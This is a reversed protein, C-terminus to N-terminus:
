RRRLESWALGFIYPTTLALIVLPGAIWYFEFWRILVEPLSADGYLLEDM